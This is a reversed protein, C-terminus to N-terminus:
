FINLFAKEVVEPIYVVDEKHSEIYDKLDKESPQLGKEKLLRNLNYLVAEMMWKDDGWDIGGFRHALAIDLVCYDRFSPYQRIYRSLNALEDYEEKLFVKPESM